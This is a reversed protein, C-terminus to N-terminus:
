NLTYARWRCSISALHPRTKAQLNRALQSCITSQDAQNLSYFSAMTYSQFMNRAVAASARFPIHEIRHREGQTHMGGSIYTTYLGVNLGYLEM